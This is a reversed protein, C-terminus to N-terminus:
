PFQINMKTAVFALWKVRDQNGKIENMSDCCVEKLVVVAQVGLHGVKIIKGLACKTFM